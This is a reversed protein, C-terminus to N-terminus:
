RNFPDKGYILVKVIFTIFICVIIIFEGFEVMWGPLSTPSVPREEKVDQYLKM